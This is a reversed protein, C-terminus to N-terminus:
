HPVRWGRSGLARNGNARACNGHLGMMVGQALQVCVGSVGVGAVAAEGLRGVWIMDITPGLSMVTQTITIPWSLLLLNKLISGETWDRESRAQM